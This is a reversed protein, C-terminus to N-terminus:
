GARRFRPTPQQTTAAPTERGLSALISTTSIGDVVGTVMVKGGYAEVLEHGVVESPKYTGGKVLVDPRIAEILKHPTDEDFVVVAHVCALAALM